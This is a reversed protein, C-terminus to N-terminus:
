DIIQDPDDSTLITHIQQALKPYSKKENFMPALLQGKSDENTKSSSSSVYDAWLSNLTPYYNTVVSMAMLNSVRPVQQLQRCFTDQVRIEDADDPHCHPPIKKVCELESTQSIYPRESLMRTAKTLHTVIAEDNKCLVAEVQHEILVWTLADHLEEVTPLFSNGDRKAAAAKRSTQSSWQKELSEQVSDLLLIIRPKHEKATKKKKIWAARWGIEVSKIFEALRPYDDDGVGRELLSQFLKDNVIIAIEPFHEYHADQQSYLAQVAAKAGGDLANRRIWQVVSTGALASAHDVVLHEQRLGTQAKLLDIWQSSQGSSTAFTRCDDLLIAIEEQALKGAMQQCTRVHRKKTAQETEDAAKKLERQRKREAVEKQKAAAKTEKNTKAPSTPKKTTPERKNKKAPSHAKDKTHAKAKSDKSTTFKTYPEQDDVPNHRPKSRPKLKAALALVSDVSSSDDNDDDDDVFINNNSTASRKFADATASKIKNMTTSQKTTPPDTRKAPFSSGAAAPSSSASSQTGSADDALLLNVPDTSTAGSYSLKPRSIDSRTTAAPQKKSSPPLVELEEEDDSTWVM